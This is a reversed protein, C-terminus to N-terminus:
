RAGERATDTAGALTKASAALPAGPQARYQAPAVGEWRKFARAFTSQESFGTLFAIEAISCRSTRLLSRALDSQAESVLDRFTQGEDALRRFFTRESMGLHRAVTSAQPIGASLGAELHQLVHHRLSATPARSGLETDLHAILFESVAADGLRNRRDLAGPAFAIADEQAGFVVPCGLAAAYRDPAGSCPHRFSVHALDLPGDVFLRMNRAFAYLACEARLQLGPANAPGGKLILRPPSTCEELRYLATDTLLLFYREVRELSARLTPATKIALGLAGLDDIGIAAAYASVVSLRDPRHDEIWALLAFFAQDSVHGNSDPTLFLLTDSGTRVAGDEAVTLDVAASLARIFAITVSPM